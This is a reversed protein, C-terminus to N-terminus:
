RYGFAYGSLALLFLRWESLQRGLLVFRGGFM